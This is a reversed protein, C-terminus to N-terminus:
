GFIFDDFNKISQEHWPEPYVLKTPEAPIGKLSGAKRHIELATNTKTLTIFKFFNVLSFVCFYCIFRFHVACRREISNQCLPHPKSIQFLWRIQMEQGTCMVWYLIYGWVHRCCCDSLFTYMQIDKRGVHVTTACLYHTIRVTQDSKGDNYLPNMAFSAIIFSILQEKPPTHCSKMYM